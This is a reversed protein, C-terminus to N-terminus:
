RSNRVTSGRSCNRHRIIHLPLLSTVGSPAQLGVDRSLRQKVGHCICRRLQVHRQQARNHRGQLSQPTAGLHTGRM